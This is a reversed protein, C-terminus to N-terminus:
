AVNVLTIIPINTMNDGVFASYKEISQIDCRKIAHDKKNEDIILLFEDNYFELWGIVGNVCVIDDLGVFDSEVKERIRGKFVITKEM